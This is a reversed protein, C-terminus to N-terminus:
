GTSVIFFEEAMRGEGLGAREATAALWGRVRASM